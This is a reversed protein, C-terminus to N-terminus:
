LLVLRRADLLLSGGSGRTATRLRCRSGPRSRIRGRCGRSTSRRARIRDTQRVEVAVGIGLDAVDGDVGARLGVGEDVFAAEAGDQEREAVVAVSPMMRPWLPSTSTPPWTQDFELSSRSCGSACPRHVAASDPCPAAAVPGAVDLHRGADGGTQLALVFGSNPPTLGLTASSGASGTARGRRRSAAARGRRRREHLGREGRASGVGHRQLGADVVVAVLEGGLEVRAVVDRQARADVVEVERGALVVPREVLVDDARRHSALPWPTCITKASQACM